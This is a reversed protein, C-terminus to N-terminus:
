SPTPVAQSNGKPSGLILWKQMCMGKMNMVNSLFTWQNWFEIFWVTKIYTIKCCSTLQKLFSLHPMLTENDEMRKLLWHVFIGLDMPEMFLSRSQDKTVYCLLPLINKPSVIGCSSISGTAYREKRTWLVMKTCFTKWAVSSQACNCISGKRSSWNATVSYKQVNYWLLTAQNSSIELRRVLNESGSSGIQILRSILLERDEKAEEDFHFEEHKVDDSWKQDWLESLFM